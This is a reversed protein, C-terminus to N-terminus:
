PAPTHLARQLWAEAHRWERSVTAPSVGLVAASEEITLGGFLRLEVLRAQRDDLAALRELALDLALLDFSRPASAPSIEEISVKSIGGARKRALRRRAHDVLVERMARAAVAIFHARSQWTLGDGRGALKIYAEHVLATPELTHGGRERRMAARARSKLDAYVLPFLRDLATTDGASWARLLLTVEGPASAEVM